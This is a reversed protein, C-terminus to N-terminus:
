VLDLELETWTGGPEGLWRPASSGILEPYPRLVGTQTMRYVSLYHAIRTMRAHPTTRAM